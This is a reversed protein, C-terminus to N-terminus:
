PTGKEAEERPPAPCHEVEAERLRDLYRRLRVARARLALAAALVQQPEPDSGFDPLM